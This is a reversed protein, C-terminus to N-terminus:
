CTKGRFLTLALLGRGQQKVKIGSEFNYLFIMGEPLHRVCECLWDYKMQAASNYIWCVFESDPAADRMGKFMPGLVNLMVQWPKLDHCRSCRYPYFGGYFCSCLAEGYPINIVGGLHPVNSFLNFMQQYLHDYATQSSPCFCKMSYGWDVGELEPHEKLMDSEGVFGAPEIFLVFIRIGYRRCREVTERLRALRKEMKADPAQISSWSVESLMVTLWLVNIGERALTSLYPEPYYDTDSLLEDIDNPPRHTPSYFSRSIRNKVTYKLHHSEKKLFPGYASDLLRCFHYIGRRVGEIGGAAITIRDDKIHLFAEEQELSTDAATEFIITGDPNVGHDGAIRKLDAYATELLNEPDPFNEIVSMGKSMDLTDGGPAYKGKFCFTKNPKAFEAAVIDATSGAPASSSFFGM